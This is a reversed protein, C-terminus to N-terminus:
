DGLSTTAFQNAPHMHFRRLSPTKGVYVLATLKKYGPATLSVNYYGPTMSPLRIRGDRGIVTQEGITAQAQSIPINSGIAVVDLYVQARQPRLRIIPMQTRDLNYRQLLSQYGGAAAFIEVIGNQQQPIEFKGNNNLTVVLGDITVQANALGNGTLSDIVQGMRKPTPVPAAVTVFGHEQQIDAHWGSDHLSSYPDDQASYEDDSNEDSYTEILTNYATDMPQDDHDSMTLCTTRDSTASQRTNEAATDVLASSNRMLTEAQQLTAFSSWWSKNEEAETTDTISHLSQEVAPPWHLGSEVLTSLDSRLWAPVPHLESLASPSLVLDSRRRQLLRMLRAWGAVLESQRVAENPHFTKDPYAAMLSFALVREILKGQNKSLDKPNLPTADENPLINSQKLVQEMCSALALRTLVQSGADCAPLLWTQCAALSLLIFIGLAQRRNNFLLTLGWSVTQRLVSVNRLWTTM